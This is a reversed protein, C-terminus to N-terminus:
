AAANQSVIRCPVRGASRRAKRLEQWPPARELLRRKSDPSRASSCILQDVDEVVLSGILKEIVQELCHLLPRTIQCVQDSRGIRWPCSARRFFISCVDHGHGGAYSSALDFRQRWYKLATSTTLTSAPRLNSWGPTFRRLSISCARSPCTPEAGSNSSKSRSLSRDCSM